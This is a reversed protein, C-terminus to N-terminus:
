SATSAVSLRSNQFSSSPSPLPFPVAINSALHQLLTAPSSPLQLQQYTEPTRAPDGCRREESDTEEEWAVCEEV